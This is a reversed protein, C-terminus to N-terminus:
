ADHGWTGDGIRVGSRLRSERRKERATCGPLLGVEVREAAIMRVFCRSQADKPVAQLTQIRGHLEVLIWGSRRACRRVIEDTPKRLV